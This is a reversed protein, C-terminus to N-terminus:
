THIICVICGHADDIQFDHILYTRSSTCYNLKYLHFGRVTRPCVKLMRTCLEELTVLKKYSKRRSFRLRITAEYARVGFSSCLDVRGFYNFRCGAINGWTATKKFNYRKDSVIVKFDRLDENDDYLDILDHYKMEM